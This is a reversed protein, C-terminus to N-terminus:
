SHHMFQELYRRCTLPNKIGMIVQHTGGSGTIVLDGYNLITGLISQKLDVCEIRNLPLDLTQQVLFGSQIMVRKPNIDLLTFYYRFWEICLWALSIGGFILYLQWVHVGVYSFILPVILFILPKIFMIWHLRTQYSLTDM